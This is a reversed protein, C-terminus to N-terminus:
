PELGGEANLYREGLDCLVTVVNKGKGLRAAVKMAAAVNAGASLGALVGEKRALLRATQAAESDTVTVIEDIVGRNLTAPVFGPGIGQLRHPGPAGGSLVASTKPEVAVVLVGPIKKKLVEGVGTLTGGTGVGAVFAHVKGKLAKMIEKATGKRHAAPNSKNSFQMPMFWGPNSRALTEAKDIAGKMSQGSPTQVVEAGLAQFIGRRSLSMGQPMVLVCRYGLVACVLALGVGTNGSTPEVVTGGPKLLGRSEADRIMALAIRDKVSGGPNGMEFKGWLAAGNPAIRSLRVLPTNGILDLVSEATRITL